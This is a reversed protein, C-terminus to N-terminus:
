DPMLCHPARARRTLMLTRSRTREADQDRELLLEEAERTDRLYAAAHVSGQCGCVHVRLWDVM